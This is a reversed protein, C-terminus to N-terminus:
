LPLKTLEDQFAPRRPYAAKLESALDRMGSEGLDKGFRRLLECVEKYRSRNDASKARQLILQRYWGSLVENYAAPFHGALDPLEFPHTQIYIMLRNFDREALLINVYVSGPTRNKEFQALLGALVKPWAEKSYSNKLVPYYDFGTREHLVFYEALALVRARDGMAECAHYLAIRWQHVLGAYEQDHVMGEEALRVATSYDQRCMADKIANRRFDPFALNEMCFREAQEPEGWEELLELQLKALEEEYYRGYELHPRRLEEELMLSLKERLLEDGCFFRLSRLLELRQEEWGDYAPNSCEGLILHFLSIRQETPLKKQAAIAASELIKVCAALVEGVEGNSDDCYEALEVAEPLVVLSLGVAREPNLEVCSEARNLVTWAGELANSATGYEWFSRRRMCRRVLRRSGDIEDEAEGFRLLLAQRLTRDRETLALLEGALTEKSQALLLSFLDPTKKRPGGPKAMDLKKQGRITLLVAIGHKCVKGWEYPCDCILELVEGNEALQAEVEYLENGDVYATYSGEGDFTLGTVRGETFYQRGRALIKPDIEREFTDLRM